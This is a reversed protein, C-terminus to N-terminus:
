FQSVSSAAWAVFCFCGGLKRDGRPRSISIYIYIYTYVYMCVYMHIYIYIYICIYIYIYVCNHIHIYIYICVIIYIYLSLSLNIPIYNCVHTHIYIYIYMIYIYIYIYINLPPGGRAPCGRPDALLTGPPCRVIMTIVRVIVIILMMKRITKIMVNALRLGEDEPPCRRSLPIREPM